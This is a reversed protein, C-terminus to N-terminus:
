TLRLNSELMPHEGKRQKAFGPCLILLNRGVLAVKSGKLELGQDQVVLDPSFMYQRYVIFMSSTKLSCM